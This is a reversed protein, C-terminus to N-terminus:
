YFWTGLVAARSASGGQFEGSIQRPGWTGDNEPIKPSSKAHGFSTSFRCMRFVELFVLFRAGLRGWVRNQLMKPLCNTQMPTQVKSCWNAFFSHDWFSALIIAFQDGFLELAIWVHHWFSEFMIGFRDWISALMIGPLDWFSGLAIGFHDCLSGM